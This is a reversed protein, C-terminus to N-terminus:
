TVKLCRLPVLKVNTTGGHISRPVKLNNRSKTKREGGLIRRVERQDRTDRFARDRRTERSVKLLRSSLLFSFTFSVVIGCLSSSSSLDFRKKPATTKTLALSSSLFLSLFLSKGRRKLRKILPASRASNERERERERENTRTQSKLRTYLNRRLM